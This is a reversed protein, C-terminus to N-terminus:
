KQLHNMKEGGFVNGNNYDTYKANDDNTNDNKGWVQTVFFNKWHVPSTEYYSESPIQTKPKNVWAYVAAAEEATVEPRSVWMNGNVDVSRTLSKETTGFGWTHNPDPQGYYSVFAEEFALKKQDITMPAIEDDHCSVFAGSVVVALAATLLYKKM